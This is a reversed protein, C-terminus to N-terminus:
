RRSRRRRGAPSPDADFYGLVEVGDRRINRKQYIGAVLVGFTEDDNKWSISRPLTRIPRTRSIRTRPRCRASCRCRVELRAAQAYDVDILAASAAKKSTRRRARTSRSRASSTPRAADPLQLQAHGLASRPHVLRGDGACPRQVAHAHSELGHRAPERARRRRVRPQDRHRARAAPGRRSEQRPVQRRGRRHHCRRLGDANASRRSRNACARASAPSSWRRSRRESAPTTPAQQAEAGGNRGFLAMAVATGILTSRRISM